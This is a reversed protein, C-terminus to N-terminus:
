ANILSLEVTNRKTKATYLAADAADWVESKEILQEIASVWAVGISVTVVGFPSQAHTRKHGAISARLSQALDLAHTQSLVHPVIVVFEEGGYRAVAADPLVSKIVEGMWVLCRDGEGHGYSDNYSKFHDIDLVMVAAKEQAHNRMFEDMGRRNLLQTLPDHWSLHQLMKQQEQMKSMLRKRHDLVMGVPMTVLLFSALYLQLLLIRHPTDLDQTLSVPGFGWIIAPFAICALILTGIPAGAFGLGFVLWMMPAFALYLFGAPKWFFIIVGVLMLVSLRLWGQKEMLSYKLEPWADKRLAVVLPAFIAMGLSNGSWWTLLQHWEWQQDQGWLIGMLALGSVLPGLGLGFITFRSLVSPDGLNKVKRAQARIPMWAIAIELLNLLALVWVMLHSEGALYTGVVNGAVGAALVQSGLHRGMLCCMGLLIGNVPWLPSFGTTSRAMVVSAWVILSVGIFVALCRMWAIPTKNVTAHEM